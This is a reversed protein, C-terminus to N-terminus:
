DARRSGTAPGQHQHGFAQGAMTDLSNFIRRVSGMLLHARVEIRDFSRECVVGILYFMAMLSSLLAFGLGFLLEAALLERLFYIEFALLAELTVAAASLLKKHEAAQTRLRRILTWQQQLTM